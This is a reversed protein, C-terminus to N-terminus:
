ALTGAADSQSLAHFKGTGDDFALVTRGVREVAARVGREPNVLIAEGAHAWIPVDARANGAYDFNGDGFRSRLRELKQRGSLNTQEDSALVGDFLGLHDAVAKAFKLNSATALILRRGAARQQKLYDVFPEHYPLLGVDLDVRDAIQQKLHHKGKLLWVPLAFLFLINQKLLAFVSEVLLDTRVLTGDLDVCLPRPNAEVRRQKPM